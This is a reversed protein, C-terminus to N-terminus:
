TLSRQSTVYPKPGFGKSALLPWVFCMCVCNKFTELEMRVIFGHVCTHMIDQATCTKQPVGLFPNLWFVKCTFWQDDSGFTDYVVGDVSICEADVRAM